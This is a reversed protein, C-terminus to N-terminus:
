EEEVTYIGLISIGAIVLGWVISEVEQISDCPVQQLKGYYFEVIYM